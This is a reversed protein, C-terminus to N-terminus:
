FNFNIRYESQSISNYSVTKTCISDEAKIEDYKLDIDKYHYSIEVNEEDNLLFIDILNKNIATIINKYNTKPTIENLSDFKIIVYQYEEKINDVPRENILLTDILTRFCIKGYRTNYITESKVIIDSIYKFEIKKVGKIITEGISVAMNNTSNVEFLTKDQIAIDTLLDEYPVILDNLENFKTNM